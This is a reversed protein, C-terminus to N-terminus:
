IKFDGAARLMKNIDNKFRRMNVQSKWSFLTVGKDKIYQIDDPKYKEIVMKVYEDYPMNLARAILVSNNVHPLFKDTYAARWKDGSQWEKLQIIM